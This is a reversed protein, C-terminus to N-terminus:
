GYMCDNHECDFQIGEEQEAELKGRTTKIKEKEEKNFFNLKLIADFEKLVEEKTKMYSGPYTLENLMHEKIYAMEGVFLDYKKLYDQQRKIFGILVDNGVYSSGGYDWTQNFWAPWGHSGSNWYRDYIDMTYRFFEDDGNGQTAAAKKYFIEQDYTFDIETCEAVCSFVVPGLTGDLGTFEDYVWGIPDWWGSEEECAKKKDKLWDTKPETVETYMAEFLNNGERYADQLERDTSATNFHVLFTDLKTILTETFFQALEKRNESTIGHESVQIVSLTDTSLSDHEPAESADFELQKGSEEGSGCSVLTALLAVATIKKMKYEKGMFIVFLTISRSRDIWFVEVKAASGSFRLALYIM